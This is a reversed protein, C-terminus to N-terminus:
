IIHWTNRCTKISFNIKQHITLKGSCLQVRIGVKTNKLINKLNQKQLTDHLRYPIKYHMRYKFDKFKWLVTNSFSLVPLSYYRTTGYRWANALLIVPINNSNDGAWSSRNSALSSERLALTSSAISSMIACPLYLISSERLSPIQNQPWFVKYQASNLQYIWRVRQKTRSKKEKSLHSM